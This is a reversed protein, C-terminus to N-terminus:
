DNNNGKEEILYINNDQEIIKYNNYVENFSASDSIEVKYQNKGTYDPKYICGILISLLMVFAAILSIKISKLILADSEKYSVNEDFAAKFLKYTAWVGYVFYLFLVIWALKLLFINTMIPVVEIINVGNPM